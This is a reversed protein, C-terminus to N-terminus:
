SGNFCRASRGPPGHRLLGPPSISMCKAPARLAGTGLKGVGRGAGITIWSSPYGRFGTDSKTWDGGLIEMMDPVSGSPITFALWDITLTFPSSMSEM